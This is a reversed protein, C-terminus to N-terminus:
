EVVVTITLERQLLLMPDVNLAAGFACLEDVSVYGRRGAEINAITPRNLGPMGVAACHEALVRASWGRQTRINKINQAVRQTPAAPDSPQTM